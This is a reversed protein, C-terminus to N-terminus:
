DQKPQEREGQSRRERPQEGVERAGARFEEQTVFGDGNTDLMAFREKMPEPAEERSIKGDGDRDLRKFVAGPEPNREGRGGDAERRPADGERRTADAPREADRRGAEPRREDAPAREGAPRREGAEPRRDGAPDRDGEPRREGRVGVPAPPGGILEFPDLQGDHNKDLEDFKETVKAFEDKSLRGDNNTDLMRFIAPGRGGQPPGEPRRDGERSRENAPEPRREVDRPRDVEPRRDGERRDGEPQRVNTNARDGEPRRDGEVKREGDPRRPAEGDRPPTPLNKLFEERTLSGDREKGARRLINEVMPKARDPAEDVTLKGDGNTDLRGFFEEPNGPGPRGAEPRPAGGPQDPRGGGAGRMRESIQVFEERSIEDKGLREFMPTMRERFEAPIEDRSLKGDGNADLRKFFEGPEPRGAGAAGLRGFDELTLEQKGAKEFVPKLRERLPEPVEELTIKGDKNRDLMEFRQRPNAAGADGGQPGLPVNPREEPKNAQQFEELTLEGDSNKDGLRVLREFFRTQEDPVESAALKGDGNKDLKKFVADADFPADEGWAWSGGGCLMAVLAAGLALRTRKM